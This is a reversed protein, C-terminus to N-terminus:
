RTWILVLGCAGTPGTPSFLDGQWVSSAPTLPLGYSLGFPPAGRYVEIGAVDAVAIRDYDEERFPMGDVSVPVLCLRGRSFRTPFCGRICRTVIREGALLTSIRPPQSREIEERTFFRAFGRYSRQRAYFGGLDRWRDPHQAEVVVPELDVADVDLLVHLTKTRGNRLTFQYEETQRGEYAIRIKQVGAPLGALSFTGTSDTVVRKRAAPVSIMVGSLPRGNLSSAAIGSIRATTDVQSNLPSPRVVTASLIAILCAARSPM